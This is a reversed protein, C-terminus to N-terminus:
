DEEPFIAALARVVEFAGVGVMGAADGKLAEASAQAMAITSAEDIPAPRGVKRKPFTIIDASM